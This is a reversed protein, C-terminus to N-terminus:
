RAEPSFLSYPMWKPHRFAWLDWYPVFRFSIADWEAARALARKFVEVDYSVSMDAGGCIGDMDTMFMYDYHRWNAEVEELVYNRAAAIANTRGKSRQNDKFILTAFSRDGLHERLAARTDDTSDNEFFIIHFDGLAHGLAILKPIHNRLHKSGINKLVGALIIKPKSSSSGRMTSKTESLDRLAIREGQVRTGWQTPLAAESLVAALLFAYWVSM